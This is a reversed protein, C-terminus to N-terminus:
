LPCRQGFPQRRAPPSRGLRWDIAPLAAAHGVREIRHQAHPQRGRHFGNRHVLAALLQEHILVDNNKEASPGLRGLNARASEYDPKIRLATEFCKRAGALDGQRVLLIGLQNQVMFLGPNLRVAERYAAVAGADDAQSELCIGLRMWLRADTQNHGIAARFAEIARPLDKALICTEALRTLITVDEPASERARALASVAEAFRGGARLLESLAFMQDTIQAPSLALGAVLREAESPRGRVTQVVSMLVRSDIDDPYHELARALYKEANDIAGFTLFTRAMGVSYWPRGVGGILKAFGGISEDPEPSRPTFPSQPDIRYRAILSANAPFDRVYVLNRNDLHVLAWQPNAALEALLWGFTDRQM